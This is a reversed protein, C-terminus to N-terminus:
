RTRLAEVASPVERIHALRRHATRFDGQATLENPIVLCRMGASHAALMGRESDEIVLCTEPALGLREAAKLYPDPHPKSRAYDGHALVFDFFRHTDHPSHIVDFNEHSTTTVLAMPLDGHLEGLTQEVGDMLAVGSELQAYYRANRELRLAELRGEDVGEARALDFCSRGLRLNWDKYHELSLSIEVQALADRTAAFYLHETDVLVGDNDFLIAEIV